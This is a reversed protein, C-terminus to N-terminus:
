RDVIKRIMLLALCHLLVNQPHFLLPNGLSPFIFGLCGIATVSYKLNISKKITKVGIWFSYFYCLMLLGGGIIGFKHFLNLYTIEFGYPLETNRQYGSIVAGLGHGVFNIDRLLYGMQEYRLINSADDSAFISTVITYYGLLAISISLLLVILIYIFTKINLKIKNNSYIIRLTLILLLVIAALYYGKSAPIFLLAFSAMAFLLVQLFFRFSIRNEGFYKRSTMIQSITVALLIFISSQGPYYIRSHGTSSGSILRGFLKTIIPNTYIDISLYDRFLFLIINQLMVLVSSIYLIKFLREKSLKQIFFIYYFLYAVMGAFNRIIFIPENKNIFGLIFGYLWVMFFILPILDILLLRTKIIKIKFNAIILKLVWVIFMLFFLAYYFSTPQNLVLLIFITATLM